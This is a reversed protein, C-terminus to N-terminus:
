LYQYNGKIYGVKYKSDHTITNLTDVYVEVQYLIEDAQTQGTEKRIMSVVFKYTRCTNFMCWGYFTWGNKLINKSWINLHCKDNLEKYRTKLVDILAVFFPNRKNHNFKETKRNVIQTKYNRCMKIDGYTLYFKNEYNKCLSFCLKKRQVFAKTKVTRLKLQPKGKLFSKSTKEVINKRLQEFPTVNFDIRTINLSQSQSLDEENTTNM